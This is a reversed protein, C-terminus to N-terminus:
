LCMRGWSLSGRYGSDSAPCCPVAGLAVVGLSRRGSTEAERVDGGESAFRSNAGGRPSLYIIKTHHHAASIQRLSESNSFFAAGAACSARHLPLSAYVM